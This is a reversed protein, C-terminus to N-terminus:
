TGRGSAHLLLRIMSFMRHFLYDVQVSERVPIKDAEAHRIMFSNGIGTLERAEQELKNRLVPEAAAKDLLIKFSAKKDNGTEVTKLREWADWLKELSERRVDLSRNLFKHRSAELLEDLLGDGTHFVTEALSEHLLAPPLRIVEGGKLEFAMGNREFIRNTDHTFKERGIEQDYSYHSHSMYSHYSPDKAEAILEYSFEVLDFIQDESPPNARDIEEPWRVRFGKMTERLKTFDTGAYAYGDGCKNPFSLGFWEEDIRSSILTLLANRTTEDLAEAVRPLVQGQRETFLKKM